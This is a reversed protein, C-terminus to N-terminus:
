KIKEAIWDKADRLGAKTKDYASQFGSKVDEWTDASANKVKDLQIRLAAAQDRLAQLKPEADAKAQASANKLKESAEAIEQNMADLKPQMKAVLEAKQAYAYDKVSEAADATDQKAKELRASAEEKLSAVKEQDTATKPRSLLFYAAAGVVILM